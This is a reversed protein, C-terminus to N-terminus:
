KFKLNAASFDMSGQTGPTWEINKQKAYIMPLSYLPCALPNEAFAKLM